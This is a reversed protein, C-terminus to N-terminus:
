VKFDNESMISEFSELFYDANNRNFVLPPKIKLVNHDPGGTGILIGRQKMQNVVFEAEDPLTRTLNQAYDIISDHLYRTNTNLEKNQNNAAEIVKPHCHGVHSINNVADLYEKGNSDYLYQGRGRVIHLPMDYSVSFSPALYKSRKKIIDNHDLM